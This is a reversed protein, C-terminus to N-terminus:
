MVPDPPVEEQIDRKPLEVQFPALEIPYEDFETIKANVIYGVTGGTSNDVTLGQITDGELLMVSLGLVQREKEGVTDSIISVLTLNGTVGDKTQYYISAQATGLVTTATERDVSVLMLEVCAKKQDPVTYTWRTAQTHPAVGSAEYSKFIEEANRDYWPLTRLQYAM